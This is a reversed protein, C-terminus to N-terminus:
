RLDYVRFAPLDAKRVNAPDYPTGTTTCFIWQPMGSWDRRLTERKREVHLQGLIAALEASVHVDREEDTKTPGEKNSDLSGFRGGTRM